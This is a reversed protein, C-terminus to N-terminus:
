ALEENRKCLEKVDAELNQKRAKESTVEDNIKRQNEECESVHDFM